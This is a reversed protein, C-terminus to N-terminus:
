ARGAGRASCGASETPRGARLFRCLGDTADDLQVAWGSGRGTEVPGRGEDWMWRVQQAAERGLQFIAAQLEVLMRAEWTEVGYRDAPPQPFEPLAQLSHNLWLPMSVSTRLPIAQYVTGVPLLRYKRQTCM